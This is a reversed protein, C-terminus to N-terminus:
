KDTVNVLILCTCTNIQIFTPYNIAYVELFYYPVNPELCCFLPVLFTSGEVVCFGKFSM